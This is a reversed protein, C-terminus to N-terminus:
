KDTDLINQLKKETRELERQLFEKQETLIEKETMGSIQGAFKRGITRKCGSVSGNGMGMGRAYGRGFGFAMGLLTAGSCFGLGRGSMAGQGMPGSGDRRPM